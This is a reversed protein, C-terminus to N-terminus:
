LKNASLRFFEVSLFGVTLAMFWQFFHLLKKKCFQRFIVVAQDISFVVPFMFMASVVGYYLLQAFHPSVAHADKAGSSVSCM